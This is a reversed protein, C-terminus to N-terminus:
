NNPSGKETEKRKPRGAELASDQKNSPFTKTFGKLLDLVHSQLDGVRGCGSKRSVQPGSFWLPNGGLTQPLRSPELLVPTDTRAQELLALPGGKDPIGKCPRRVTQNNRPEEELINVGTCGTCGDHDLLEVLLNRGTRM